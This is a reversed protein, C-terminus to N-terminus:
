HIRTSLNLHFTFCLYVPANPLTPLMRGGPFKKIRYNYHNSWDPFNLYALLFDHHQWIRGISFFGTLRVTKNSALCNKHKAQAVNM